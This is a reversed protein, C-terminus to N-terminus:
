EITKHGVSGSICTRVKRMHGEDIHPYSSYTHVYPHTHIYTHIYIHTHIPTYIHIHINKDILESSVNLCSITNSLM